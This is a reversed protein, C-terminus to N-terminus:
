HIRATDPCAFDVLLGLRAMSNQTALARARNVAGEKKGASASQPDALTLPSRSLHRSSRPSSRSTDHAFGALAHAVLALLLLSVFKM